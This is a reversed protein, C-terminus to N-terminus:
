RRQRKSTHPGYHESTGWPKGFTQDTPKAHSLSGRWAVSAPAEGFAKLDGWEDTEDIPFKDDAGCCTDIVAAGWSTILAKLAEDFVISDPTGPRM